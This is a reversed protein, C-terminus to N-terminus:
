FWPIGEDLVKALKPPTGPEFHWFETKDPRVGLGYAIRIGWLDALTQTTFLVWQRYQPIHKKKPRGGTWICIPNFFGGPGPPAAPVRMECSLTRSFRHVFTLNKPGTTSTM